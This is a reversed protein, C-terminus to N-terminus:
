ELFINPHTHKHNFLTYDLRLGTMYHPQYAQGCICFIHVEGIFTFDLIKSFTDLETIGICHFILSYFALKTYMIFNFKLACDMHLYILKLHCFKLWEEFDYNDYLVLSSFLCEILMFTRHARTFFPV